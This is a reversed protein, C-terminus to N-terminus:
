RKQIDFIESEKIIFKDNELALFKFKNVLKQYFNYSNAYDAHGKWSNLMQEAKKITMRGQKILKPMAKLKRKVKKKSDNRLLMHTTHIKYGIGNVGQALPFIKSKDQNLKLDLERNIFEEAIVKIKKAKQRSKLILFMDDAYRVYFKIGLKRKVFKDFKNMYINSGLQSLTNGLPLGKPSISDASDIIKYFLDLTKNCKIKKTLIKKFIDRNISYFFKKIDLKLIFPKDWMWKAKRLFHQIRKACAHTGKGDICSYSDYIFSPFYIEKLQNNMAIQVIKDKFHPAHILREKPEYVYFEIYDDFQYTGNILRNRLRTLNYTENKRFIMADKNYKSKGRLTKKYADYINQESTIKNFLNSM